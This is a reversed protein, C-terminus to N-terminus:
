SQKAHQGGEAAQIKTILADLRTKLNDSLPNVANLCNALFNYSIKLERSIHSTPIKKSRFFNLYYNDCTNPLLSKAM